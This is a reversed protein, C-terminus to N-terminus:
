LTNSAILSSFSYALLAALSFKTLCKFFLDENLFDIREQSCVVQLLSFSVLITFEDSSTSQVISTRAQNHFDGTSSSFYLDLSHFM